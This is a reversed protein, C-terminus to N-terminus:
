RWEVRCAFSVAGQANTGVVTPCEDITECCVTLPQGELVEQRYDIQFTGIADHEGPSIAALAYNAYRANNVHGNIDVDTYAPVVVISPADSGPLQTIKRPKQPFARDELFDTPGDYYDLVSVFKHTEADLMLWESSGEVLLNGEKDAISYDRLFSFRSPTHPWTSAIVSSYLSPEAVMRYKTRAVIWFAGKAMMDDRGMGSANAQVTAMDQFIDLIAAPQLRNYRDFDGLRLQYEKEGFLPM